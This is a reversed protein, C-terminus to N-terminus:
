IGKRYLSYSYIAPILVVLVIIVLPIIGFQFFASIIFVIGGVIFLKGALRSTRNWNETSNLTWPLRIGVTYSQKSKPIYNGIVVFLVGVMLNAGMGINLSIGVAIGYIMFCCVWSTVPIIWFVVNLMKNSINKKKPDNLTVFICVLHLLVLLLPMGFVAFTRSSWGNAVNNMGWHTAITEPLKNWLLIGALMPLITIISTIIIRKLYPKM